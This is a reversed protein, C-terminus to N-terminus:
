FILFLPMGENAKSEQEKMTTEIHTTTEQLSKQISANEKSLAAKARKAKKLDFEIIQKELTLNLCKEQWYNWDKKLEEIYNYQEHNKKSIQNM